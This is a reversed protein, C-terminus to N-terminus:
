LFPLMPLHDAFATLASMIVHGRLKDRSLFPTGQPSLPSQISPRPARSHSSVNLRLHSAWMRFLTHVRTWPTLTLSTHLTQCVPHQQHRFRTHFNHTSLSLRGFFFDYLSPSTFCIQLSLYAYLLCSLTWRFFFPSLGPLRKCIPPFLTGLASNLFLLPLLM